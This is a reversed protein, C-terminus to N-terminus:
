SGTHNHTVIMANLASERERDIRFDLTIQCRVM